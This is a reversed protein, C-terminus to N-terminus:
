HYNNLPFLRSHRGAAREQAIQKSNIELLQEELENCATNLWARSALRLQAFIAKRTSPKKRAFRRLKNLIPSLQRNYSTQTKMVGSVPEFSASSLTPYPFSRPYAFGPRAM